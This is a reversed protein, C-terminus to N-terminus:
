CAALRVPLSLCAAGEVVLLFAKRGVLGIGVEVSASPRVPIHSALFAEEPRRSPRSRTGVGAAPTRRVVAEAEGALPSHAETHAACPHDVAQVAALIGTLAGHILLTYRQLTM